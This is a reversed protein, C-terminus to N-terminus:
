TSLLACCASLAWVTAISGGTDAWTEERSASVGTTSGVLVNNGSGVAVGAGVWLNVANGVPEDKSVDVCM